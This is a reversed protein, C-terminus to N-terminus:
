CPRGELVALVRRLTPGDFGSPIRLRVGQALVIEIPAEPCAREESVVRVPVFTGAEGSSNELGKREVRGKAASESRAGSGAAKAALPKEHDARLRRRWAYFTHKTLGERRCFEAVTLNERRFRALRSRWEVERNSSQKSGM